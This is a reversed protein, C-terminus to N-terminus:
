SLHLRGDERQWGVLIEQGKDYNISEEADSIARVIVEQGDSLTVMHQTTLGLYIKEHYKASVTQMTGEGADGQAIIRMCESRISVSATAGVAPLGGRPNVSISGFDGSVTLGSQTAETIKGDLINNEGIFDATFRHSPNRYIDDASGHEVLEGDAVIAIRDAVTMAEEQNHTVHVFTIGVKEQLHKLEYCMDKRLNADLAALPEDLLIIDSELVLARALQVRQQQGGSLEWPMREDYGVLGVQALMQQVRDAIEHKPMKKLRLGYGVNNAVTMHPFLAYSQFVMSTSRKEPPQDTMDQGHLLVQGATPRIFGGLARLLTTKGGGSPGLLVFYEGSNITLDVSKLAQVNGYNKSLGRVEVAIERNDAM